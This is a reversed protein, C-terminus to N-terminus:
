LPEMPSPPFLYSGPKRTWTKSKTTGRRLSLSRDIFAKVRGRPVTAAASPFLKTSDELMRVTRSSDATFCNREARSPGFPTSQDYGVVIDKASRLHKKSRKPPPKTQRSQESSGSISKDTATPKSFASVFLHDPLFDPNGTTEDEGQSDDSGLHDDEDGTIDNAEADGDSSDSQGELDGDDSAAKSQEEEDADRMAKDM